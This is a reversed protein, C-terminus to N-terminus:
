LPLAMQSTQLMQPNVLFRVFLNTLVVVFVRILPTNTTNTVLEATESSSWTTKLTYKFPM